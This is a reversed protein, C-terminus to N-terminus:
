FFFNYFAIWAMFFPVTFLAADFRDLVGGHGPMISGSDKVGANRKFLSELLDGLGSCPGIFLASIVWFWLNETDMISGILFGGLISMAIGGITGEWTKNPSIREILKTKGFFKGFLFAFTDNTWILIFMGVLNPFTNMEEQLIFCMLFFPLVVYIYGLTQIGLNLLPNTKKRWLEVILSIFIVPAILFLAIYPLIGILVSTIIGYLFVGFASSIRWDIDIQDSQDFLRYFEMLGILMFGSLIAIALETSYFMPILVLAVFVAGSLSRVLINNM